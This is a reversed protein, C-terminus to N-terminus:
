RHRFPTWARAQAPRVDVPRTPMTRAHPKSELTSHRSEIKSHRAERRQQMARAQAREEGKFSKSM